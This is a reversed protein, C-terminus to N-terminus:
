QITEANAPAREGALHRSALATTRAPGEPATPHDETVTPAALTLSRGMKQYVPQVTQQNLNCVRLRSIASRFQGVIGHQTFM